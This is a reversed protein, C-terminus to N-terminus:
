GKKALVGLVVRALQTIASCAKSGADEELLLARQRSIARPVADDQPIWGLYPPSWGLFQTCVQELQSAAREAALQQSANNIVLGLHNSRQSGGSLKVMAYADTMSTPETTTIVLTLDAFRVLDRTAPSIGPSTDIVVVDYEHTLDEVQRLLRLRDTRSLDALAKDGSGNPIILLGEPGLVMVDRIAEGEFLVHGLHKRPAIGLAVDINALGWDADLLVVRKQRRRLALALNIAITTKGVGGKGSAVAIVRGRRRAAPTEEMEVASRGAGAPRAGRLAAAQDRIM